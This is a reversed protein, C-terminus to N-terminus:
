TLARVAAEVLGDIDHPDAEAAPEWGYQRLTASTVPGISIARSAAQPITKGASQLLQFFNAVTSSSTFTVADPLTTDPRFIAQVRESSEAPIITRYADVVDVSAGCRRLEDPIVDRAVAARALLIRTGAEHERLADVLSEAVYESPVLNVSFGAERLAASTASGVAAIQLDPFGAPSLSLLRMREILVRVTNASTVILWAYHRLQRLAADMPEYSEPPIIEITPLEIVRAGLTELERSLRSAQQRTRTVVITKGALPLGSM